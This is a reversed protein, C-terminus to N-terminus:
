IWGFLLSLLDAIGLVKNAVASGTNLIAGFDPM